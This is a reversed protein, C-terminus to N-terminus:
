YTSIPVPLGTDDWVNGTITATCGTSRHIAYGNFGDSAPFASQRIIRNDRVTVNALTDGNLSGNLNIVADGGALWNKEVLAGVLGGAPINNQIIIAANNYDDAADVAAIVPQHAPNLYDRNAAKVGAGNSGLAARAGGIFNGDVTYGSFGQMQIGDSHCRRDSPSTPFNPYLNLPATVTDTPDFWATYYANHVRNNRFLTPGYYSGASAGWGDVTRTIESYQMTFNNGRIGDTWVNERGHMDVMVWEIIAARGNYTANIAADNVPTGAVWTPGQGWMPGRVICDRLRPATGDGTTFTVKGYIDLGSVTSGGPIVIDGFYPTLTSLDQVRPGINRALPDDYHGVPRVTGPAFTSFVLPNVYPIITPRSKAYWNEGDYLYTVGAIPQETM